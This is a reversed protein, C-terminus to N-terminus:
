KFYKTLNLTYHAFGLNNPHADDSFYRKHHPILKQGDILTFSYKKAEKKVEDSIKLLLTFKEKNEKADSLWAPTVVYTKIGKYLELYREFYERIHVKTKEIDGVFAMDNTGLEIIIFDPVFGVLDLANSFFGDGGVGQNVFDADLYRSLLFPYNNSATNNLLGQSISDGLVLFSRKSYDARCYEGLSFDGVSVIANAPFVISIKKKQVSECNYSIKHKKTDSFCLEKTDTLIDNEYIDFTPTSDEFMNTWAKHVTYSFSIESANTYFEALIGGAAKAYSGNPKKEYVSLQKKTFRYPTIFGEADVDFSLAGKFISIIDM